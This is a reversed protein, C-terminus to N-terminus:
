FTNKLAPKLKVQEKPTERVKKEQNPEKSNALNGTETEDTKRIEANPISEGTNEHTKEMPVKPEKPNVEKQSEIDSAEVSRRELLRKDTQIEEIVEEMVVDEKDKMAPDDNKGLKDRQPNMLAPSPENTMDEPNGTKDDVAAKKQDPSATQNTPSTIREPPSRKKTSLFAEIGKQGKPTSVKIAPM